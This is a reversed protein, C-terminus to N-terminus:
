VIDELLLLLSDIRTELSMCRGRLCMTASDTDDDERGAVDGDEGVSVVVVGTLLVVVVVGLVGGTIGARCSPSVVAVGSPDLRFRGRIRDEVGVGDVLVGLELPVELDSGTSAMGEEPAEVGGVVIWLALEERGLVGRRRAEGTGSWDGVLGNM